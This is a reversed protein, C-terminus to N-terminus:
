LEFSVKVLNMQQPEVGYVFFNRQTFYLAHAGINTGLDLLISKTGLFELGRKLINSIHPEWGKGARISGSVYADDKSSFTCVYYSPQFPM